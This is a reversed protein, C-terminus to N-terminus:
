GGRAQQEAVYPQFICGPKVPVYLAAPRKADKRNVFVPVGNHDAGRTLASAPVVRRPGYPVYRRGYQRIAARGDFWAEGTAYGNERSAVVRRRKGGERLFLEGSGVEKQARVTRLGGRAGRDVLCVTTDAYEAGGGLVPQLVRPVPLSGCGALSLLAAGLAGPGIRRCLARM